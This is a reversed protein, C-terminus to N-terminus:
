HVPAFRRSAAKEPAPSSERFGIRKHAMTKPHRRSRMRATMVSSISTERARAPMDPLPVAIAKTDVAAGPEITM